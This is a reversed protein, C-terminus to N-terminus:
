ESLIPTDHFAARKWMGGDDIWVSTTRVHSTWSEGDRQGNASVTATVIAMANFRIIDLDSVDYGDMRWTGSKFKDHRFQNWNMYAARDIPASSGNTHVYPDAVLSSVRDVDAAAYADSFAQVASQLSTESAAVNGSERPPGEAACAALTVGILSLFVRKMSM